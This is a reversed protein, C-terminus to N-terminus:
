RTEICDLKVYKNLFTLLLPWIKPYSDFGRYEILENGFRLAICWINEDIPKYNSNYLNDWNSFNLLSLEKILEEKCLKVDEIKELNSKLSVEKDLTILVKRIGCFPTGFQLSFSKLQELKENFQKTKKIEQGKEVLSTANSDAQESVKKIIKNMDMIAISHSFSRENIYYKLSYSIVNSIGNKYLRVVYNIDSIVENIDRVTYTNEESFVNNNDIFLKEYNNIHYNYIVLHILWRTQENLIIVGDIVCVNEPFKIIGTTRDVVISGQPLELICKKSLIDFKLDYLFYLDELSVKDYNQTYLYKQCSKVRPNKNVIVVFDNTEHTEYNTKIFDIFRNKIVLKRISITKYGNYNAYNIIYDVLIKAYESYEKRDIAFDYVVMTKGENSIERYAMFYGIITKNYTMVYIIDSYFMEREVNYSMEISPYIEMWNGIKYDESVYTPRIEIGDKHYKIHTKEKRYM